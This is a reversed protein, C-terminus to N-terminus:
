NLQQSALDELMKEYDEKKYFQSNGYWHGRGRNKGNVALNLRPSSIGLARMCELTSSWEVVTGDEKIEMIPISMMKAHDPRKKGYFCHDKGSPRKWACSKTFSIPNHTNEKPTVWRLNDVCDTGGDSVPIIHDICPKNEPNEIFAQAVLIHVRKSLSKQSPKTLTVTRYGDKDKALVRVRGPFTTKQFDGYKNKVLRVRDLSKVRGYNSVQYLGEYGVVDRWEEGELNQIKDSNFKRQRKHSCERCQYDLGDKRSKDKNFESLPLERGCNRCIKTKM